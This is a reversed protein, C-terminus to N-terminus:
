DHYKSHDYDYDADHKAVVKRQKRASRRANDKKKNCFDSDNDYKKDENYLTFYNNNKGM